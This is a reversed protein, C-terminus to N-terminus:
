SGEEFQRLQEQLFDFQVGGTVKAVVTGNPAVLYSEPVRAVGFETAIAGDDDRIVPWTGGRQAFFREVDPTQDSFVVSVVSADGADAHAESFRLLDDHEEQCPGCWTAFFNVLVWRGRQEDIDYSASGDVTTGTIAPVGKGVLPSKVLRTSAPDRTALVAVLLALVVGIAIAIWLATRPRARGPGADAPQTVTADSM